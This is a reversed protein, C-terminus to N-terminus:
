RRCGRVFLRRCRARHCGLLATILGGCHYFPLVNLLRDDENVGLREGVYYSTGLAADQRILAGKPFSTSGSTFVLYAAQLVGRPPPPGAQGLMSTLWCEGDREGSPDFGIVSRLRPLDSASRKEGINIGTLKGWLRKGRYTTAAVLVDVDAQELAYRIRANKGRSISLCSGLM